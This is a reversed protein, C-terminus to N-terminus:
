RTVQVPVVPPGFYSPPLEGQHVILQELVVGPDVMWVKVTHVGATTVTHTSEITKANNKVAEQWDAHEHPSKPNIALVQPPQDDISIALRLARGAVFDSTPGVIADVQLPGPKPILVDYELHPSNGPPLVSAATAPFIEMAGGGRGYDPVEQWRVNGSALNRTPASAALATPGTLGGFAHLSVRTFSASRVTQIEISVTEGGSRSIVISGTADGAPARQWDITVWLRKDKTIQGASESLKIWPQSSTATFDFPTAGRNFVDIWRQQQNISDFPPLAPAGGDGPWAAESGEIAVGMSAENPVQVEQFTPMVNHPPDKWGTYGIHSQDMMHDWKGGAIGRNYQDSLRQDLDFLVRVKAAEDNTSARGQKAYLANRGATIYLQAVTACAKAPYLVLQFFADRSQPPLQANIHDAEDSIAQWADSVREAELYNILSFTTPELLEPKRWGNFKAYKSLIDAIAPAHDAGFQEAAWQPTFSGIQDRSISDPDWAMHMFFDIPLEMPKLDGVNVIWVRDAGYRYALNMQDWIKPLPNTNLWKYSRPDGVYDFHYYIGAGGSRKREEATPVRRLNGWNDDSWLLTVDDPVRLGNEYYSQVEKYLCWMQPVKTVDPNVEEAIIQRQTAVIKELLAMSQEITGNKIMPTDDRGRMGLTIINEYDKNRAIGERWFKEMGQPDTAFNWDAGEHRRDWEAQARMMPEQHSTGMVIGYEDALQPNLPDDENFANGWMAPWLYNAKLRLLLEFVHVYMQHNLGGFKKKSWATLAPAEDNLFIGRYKVAPPGQVLRQNPFYVADHHPVPVDAWWYWPSVGMARSLDYIGYVTGRKDSGAIVLARDIGPVPHDIVQTIHSEWKGRIASVDLKQTAILQDIIASKGLTGILIAQAGISNSLPTVSGAIGSVKRFDDALDNAARSVGPFDHPDVCIPSATGDGILRFADPSDAFEV